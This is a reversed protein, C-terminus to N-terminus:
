IQGVRSIVEYFEKYKKIDDLSKCKLYDDETMEDSSNSIVSCIDSHSSNISNLSGNYNSGVQFNYISKNKFMSLVKVTCSASYRQGIVKLNKM